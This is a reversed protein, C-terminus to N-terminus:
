MKTRNKALSKKQIKKCNWYFDKVIRSKLMDLLVYFTSRSCSLRHAITLSDQCFVYFCVAVVFLRPDDRMLGSVIRDVALIDPEIVDVNRYGSSAEVRFTPSIQPYGAVGAERKSSWMGWKALKEGAWDNM